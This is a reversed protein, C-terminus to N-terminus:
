QGSGRDHHEVEACLSPSPCHVTHLAPILARDSFRRATFEQEPSPREDPVRAVQEIGVGAPPRIGTEVSPESSAREEDLESGNAPDSGCGIAGLVFTFFLVSRRM